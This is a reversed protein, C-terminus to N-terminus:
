NEVRGRFDKPNKTRAKVNARSFTTLLQGFDFFSNLSVEIAIDEPTQTTQKQKRPM